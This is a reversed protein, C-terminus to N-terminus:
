KNRRLIFDAIERLLITEREIKELDKCAATHVKEALRKTEELGYFAPYTAKEAQRDKGATKGLVETTQTVDLLDDTVQFLLGLHAAYNAIAKSENENAAAISAGAQASFSIIAGTKSHHIQELQEISITTGEAELDLQQGAVMGFPTGAAKALEAILKIRTEATLNDDEAITQFALTQLVDGALIATAEDFKVHCTERGRRLDDDDMAPLDDHVLSYTHIMEIAAATRLLKGREAGFAEGVAICLAPRFRKGGAFLSWRIAAHLRKPETQAAPILNELKKDVVRACDAFFIKLRSM